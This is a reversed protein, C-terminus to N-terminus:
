GTQSTPVLKTVRMQVPPPPPAVKSPNREEVAIAERIKGAVYKSFQGFHLYLAMLSGTYRISKPNNWLAKVLTKWFQGRTERRLGLKLAMRVFGKLEKYWQKLGPKFLRKSSDLEKGV